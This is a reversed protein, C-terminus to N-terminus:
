ACFMDVWVRAAAEGDGGELPAVVDDIAGLMEELRTGTWSYSFFGRARGVQARARALGDREAVHAVSEALSLGTSLTLRCVSVCESPAGKCVREMTLELGGHTEYFRRVAALFVRSVAREQSPLRAAHPRIPLAVPAAAERRLTELAALVEALAVDADATDSSFAVPREGQTSAVVGMAPTERAAQAASQVERVARETVRKRHRAADCADCEGFPALM